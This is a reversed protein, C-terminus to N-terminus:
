LHAFTGSRLAGDRTRYQGRMFRFDTGDGGFPVIRGQNDTGVGEIATIAYQGMFNYIESPENGPVPNQTHNGNKNVAPIPTADGDNVPAVTGPAAAVGAAGPLWLATAGLAAAGAGTRLFQRRTCHPCSLPLPTRIM